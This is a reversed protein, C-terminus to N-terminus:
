ATLNADRPLRCLAPRSLARSENRKLRKSWGCFIHAYRMSGSKPSMASCRDGHCRRVFGQRGRQELLARKRSLASLSAEAVQDIDGAPFCAVTRFVTNNGEIIAAVSEIRPEAPAIDHSAAITDAIADVLDADLPGAEALDDITQHEDFRTM